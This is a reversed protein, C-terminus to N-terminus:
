NDDFHPFQQPSKSIPSLNENPTGNNSSEYFCFRMYSTMYIMFIPLYCAFLPVTEINDNYLGTLVIFIIVLILVFIEM